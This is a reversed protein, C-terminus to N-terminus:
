TTSGDFNCGPHVRLLYRFAVGAILSLRLDHLRDEWGRFLASSVVNVAGRLPAEDCCVLLGPEM